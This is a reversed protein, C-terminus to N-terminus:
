GIPGDMPIQEGPQEPVVCSILYAAARDSFDPFTNSGQSGNGLTFSGFM